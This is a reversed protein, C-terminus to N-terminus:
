FKDANDVGTKGHVHPVPNNGVELSKRMTAQPCTPSAVQPTAQDLFLRINHIEHKRLLPLYTESASEFPRLD